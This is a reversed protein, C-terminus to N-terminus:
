HVLTAPRLTGSRDVDRRPHLGDGQAPFCGRRMLWFGGSDRTDVRPDWYMAPWEFPTENGYEPWALWHYEPLLRHYAKLNGTQVEQMGILHPAAARITAVNLAERHQWENAGDDPHHFGRINFTMVRLTSV